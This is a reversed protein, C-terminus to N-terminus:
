PHRGLLAPPDGTKVLLIPLVKKVEGKPARLNWALHLLPVGALTAFLQQWSPVSEVPATSFFGLASFCILLLVTEIMDLAFQYWSYSAQENSLWSFSFYVILLAAYGNRIDQLAELITQHGVAKYLLLVLGTGLAAPYYLSQMLSKPTSTM